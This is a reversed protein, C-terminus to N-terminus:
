KIDVKINMSNLYALIEDEGLGFDDGQEFIITRDLGEFFLIGKYNYNAIGPIVLSLTDNPYYIAKTNEYGNLADRLYEIQRVSWLDNNPYQM